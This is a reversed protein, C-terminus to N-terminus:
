AAPPAFGRREKTHEMEAVTERDFREKHYLESFVTGVGLFVVIAGFLMNNTALYSDGYKLKVDGLFTALLNFETERFIYNTLFVKTTLITSKKLFKM